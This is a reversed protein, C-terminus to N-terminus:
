NFVYYMEVCLWFLYAIFGRFYYFFGSVLGTASFSPVHIQSDQPNWGTFVSFSYLTKLNDIFKVSAVWCRYLIGALYSRHSVLVITHYNLTETLLPVNKKYVYIQSYGLKKLNSPM